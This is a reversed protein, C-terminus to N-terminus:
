TRSQKVCDVAYKWRIGFLFTHITNTYILLKQVEMLADIGYM